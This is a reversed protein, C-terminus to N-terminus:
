RDREAIMLDAYHWRWRILASIPDFNWPNGQTTQAERQSQYWESPPHPAHAALYDRLSMGDSAYMIIEGDDDWAPQVPFAPGGDDKDDDM